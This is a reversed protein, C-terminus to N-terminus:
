VSRRAKRLAKQLTQAVYNKDKQLDLLHALVYDGYVDNIWRSFDNKNDNVHHCFDSDGMVRVVRELEQASHVVQGSKVHFYFEPKVDQLLRQGAAPHYEHLQPCVGSSRLSLVAHVTSLIGRVTLNHKEFLDEATGSEGFSDNVGLRKVPVPYKESVLETVASGLGGKVQHEEITVLAGTSQAFSLVTRYDLPKVTHCNVVAVDIDEAAAKKAALLASYVMSGNAFITVDSGERFVEAKGIDFPTLRLRTARFLL